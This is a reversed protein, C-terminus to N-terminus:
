RKHEEIVRELEADYKEIREIYKALSQKHHRDAARDRQEILKQVIDLLLPIDTRANAILVKDEIYKGVALGDDTAISIISGFKYRWPGPTADEVRARIEDLKAQLKTM